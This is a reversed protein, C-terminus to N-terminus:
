KIKVASISSANAVSGRAAECNVAQQMLTKMRLRGAEPKGQKM